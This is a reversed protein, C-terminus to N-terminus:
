VFSDNSIISFLSLADPPYTQYTCTIKRYQEPILVNLSHLAQTFHYTGATPLIPPLLMSYGGPLHEPDATAPCSNAYGATVWSFVLCASIFLKIHTKMM